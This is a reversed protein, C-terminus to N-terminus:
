NSFSYLMQRVEKISVRDYRNLVKAMLARAFKKDNGSVWIMIDTPRLEIGFEVGNKVLYHDILNVLDVHPNGVRM